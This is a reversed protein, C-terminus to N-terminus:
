GSELSESQRPGPMPLGLQEARQEALRRYAAVQDLFQKKLEPDGTTDALRDFQRAHELYEVVM